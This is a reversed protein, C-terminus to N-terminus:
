GQNTDDAPDLAPGDFAGGKPGRGNLFGRGKGAVVADADISGDDRARGSVGIAMGVTVDALTDTDKPAPSATRRTPM